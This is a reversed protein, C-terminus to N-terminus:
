HWSCDTWRKHGWAKWCCPVSGWRKAYRMFKWTMEDGCLDLNAHKTLANCNDVICKYVLNYKYAPNYARHGPEVVATPNYNLKVICKIQRWRSLSMESAIELDCNTCTPDWRCFIVGMSGGRVGGRVLIGYFVILDAATILKIRGYALNREMDIAYHGTYKEIDNYFAM